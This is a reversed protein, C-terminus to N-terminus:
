SRTSGTGAAMLAPMPGSTWRSGWRPGLMPSPTLGMAVDSRGLIFDNFSSGIVGEISVFSDGVADGWASGPDTLNIVIINLLPAPPGAETEYSVFDFGDGGDLADRGGGGILIDDGDGGLLTDNGALGRLVNAADGGTLRDDFDSGILNEISSLTDVGGGGTDQAGTHALTRWCGCTPTVLAEPENARLIKAAPLALQAVLREVLSTGAVINRHDTSVDIAVANSVELNLEYPDQL